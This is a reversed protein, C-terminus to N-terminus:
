QLRQVDPSCGSVSRPLNVKSQVMASLLVSKLMAISKLKGEATSTTIQGPAHTIEYVTSARQLVSLDNHCGCHMRVNDSPMCIMLHLSPLLPHSSVKHLQHQVKLKQSLRTMALTERVACQLLM